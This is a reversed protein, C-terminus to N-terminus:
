APIVPSKRSVKYSTHPFLDLWSIIKPRHPETKHNKLIKVQAPALTEPKGYSVLFYSEATPTYSSIGLMKGIAEGSVVTINEVFSKWGLWGSESYPLFPIGASLGVPLAYGNNGKKAYFYFVQKKACISVADSRFYGILVPTTIDCIGTEDYTFRDRHIKSPLEMVVQTTQHEIRARQSFQDEQNELVDRLFEKLADGGENSPKGDQFAPLLRFAGVGPLVEHYHLYKLSKKGDKTDPPGPFLIYSGRTRRIADNYCHMKILDGTKYIGTASENAKVKKAETKADSLDGEKALIGGSFIDFNEVKYKADFHLFALRGQKAAAEEQDQPSKASNASSEPFVVLTYNPDFIRSYSGAEFVKEVSNKGDKLDIGSHKAPFSRNYYLHLRLPNGMGSDWRYRCLVTEGEKLNVAGGDGNKSFFAQPSGKETEQDELLEMGRASAPAGEPKQIGGLVERLHFFIWYEYLTPADRTDGRYFEEEFAEWKFKTARRVRTWAKLMQRYGHRKQLTQNGLPLSRLEGVEDFFSDRRISELAELLNKAEIEAPYITVEQGKRKKDAFVELVRQCVRSFQGIAFKIFRNPPTDVTDYKRISAIEQPLVTGVPSAIGGGSKRVVWDRGYIVPMRAFRDQRGTSVPEWRSETVIARHPNRKIANLWDRLKQVGVGNVLTNFQQILVGEKEANSALPQEAPASWDLLMEEMRDSLDAMMARYHLLYDMKRPVIEFWLTGVGEIKLFASGFYNCVSFSGVWAGNIETPRDSKVFRFRVDGGVPDFSTTVPCGGNNNGGTVKWRYRHGEILVVRQIGNEQAYKAEYIRIPPYGKPSEARPTSQPEMGLRDEDDHAEVDSSFFIAENAGTVLDILSEKEGKGEVTASELELKVGQFQIELKAGRKCPEDALKHAALILSM